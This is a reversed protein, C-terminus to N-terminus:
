FLEQTLAVERQELLPVIQTIVVSQFHDSNRHDMLAMEDKYAEYLMITHADASSQYVQYILNGNEQRSKVVVEELLQLVAELKGEKVQWKAFVYIPKTEM